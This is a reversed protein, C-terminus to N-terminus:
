GSRPARTRSSSTRRSRRATSSTTSRPRAAVGAKSRLARPRGRRRRACPRGADLAGQRGHGPGDGRRRPRSRHVHRRRRRRHAEHRETRQGTCPRDRARRAGDARGRREPLRVSIEDVGARGLRPHAGPMARCARRHRLRRHARRDALRHAGGVLGSPGRLLRLRTRAEVLRTLEDPMGHDPVRQMADGLHNACRVGGGLPM